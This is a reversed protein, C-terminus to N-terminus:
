SSLEAMIDWFYGYVTHLSRAHIYELLAKNIPVLIQIECLKHTDYFVMKIKHEVHSSTFLM